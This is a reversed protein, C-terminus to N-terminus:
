SLNSLILYCLDYSLILYSSLIPRSSQFLYALIPYSLYTLYSSHSQYSQYSLYALYSVYSDYSLLTLYILFFSCSLFFGFGFSLLLFFCYFSLFLFFCLVLSFSFSLFFFFSPFFHCRDSIHGTSPLVLPDILHWSQTNEHSKTMVTYKWTNEINSYPAPAFRQHREHKSRYRRTAPSRGSSRLSRLSM